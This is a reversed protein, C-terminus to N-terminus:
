RAALTVIMDNAIGGRGCRREAKNTGNNMVGMGRREGRFVVERM